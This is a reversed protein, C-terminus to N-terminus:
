NHCMGVLLDSIKLHPNDIVARRIDTDVKVPIKVENHLPYNDEQLDGSRIIGTLKRNDTTSEPWINFFDVLCEGTRESPTDPHQSCPKIAGTPAVYSYGDNHKGCRKVGAFPVLRYYLSQTQGNINMEILRKPRAKGKGLRIDAFIFQPNHTLSRMTLYNQSTKVSASVNHMHSHISSSVLSTTTMRTKLSLGIQFSTRCLRWPM